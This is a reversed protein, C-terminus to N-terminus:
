GKRAKAGTKHLKGNAKEDESRMKTPTTVSAHAPEPAKAAPTQAAALKGNLEAVKNQLATAQARSADLQTKLNERDQNAQALDTKTKDLESSSCGAGALGLVLTTGLFIRRLSMTDETTLRDILAHASGRGLMLRELPSGRNGPEEGTGGSWNREM